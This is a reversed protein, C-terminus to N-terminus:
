SAHLSTVIGDNLIEGLKSIIGADSAGLLLNSIIFDPRSMCRIQLESAALTRCGTM